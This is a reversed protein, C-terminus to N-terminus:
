VDTLTNCDLWDLWDMIKQVRLDKPYCGEHTCCHGVAVVELICIDMKWGLVTGGAKKVHQLVCNIDNLHEWAFWHIGTNKPIVEFPQSDLGLTCPVPASQPSSDTFTFATSVYWGSSDTEYCTPPGRVNVNDMFAAAINPMEEQIIFPIDGQLNQVSNMAGM